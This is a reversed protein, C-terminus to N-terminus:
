RSGTRRESRWRWAGAPLPLSYVSRARPWLTRRSRSLIRWPRWTTRSSRRCRRWRWRRAPRRTNGPSPPPWPTAADANRGDVREADHQQQQREPEFLARVDAWKRGTCGDHQCKFALAGSAFAFLAASGGVHEADFPCRALKIRRGGEWPGDSMIELGHAAIFADVDIGSGTASSSRQRPPEPAWAAVMRLEDVDVPELADPADVIRCRRHPREPTDDGKRNLTGPIRVIRAANSVTTDISVVDDSYRSALGRLTGSIIATSEADNPLDIEYILYGGNGSDMLIPEPWGQARLDSRIARARDLAAEHEAATSAIGSPRVPDLDIFLRTRREIDKDSTTSEANERARNASRALLAPVCLNVSGYIGPARGDWRHADRALADLNDYYGSVTRSRGAKPIRLEHVGPGLLIELGSRIEALASRDRDDDDHQIDRGDSDGARAATAKATM